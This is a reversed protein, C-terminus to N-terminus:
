DAYKFHLGSAMKRNGKCCSCINSGSISLETSADKISSYITNTEICIVRKHIASDSMKKKSEDSFHKGKQSNSIKLKTEDSAKKGIHALRNKQNSEESMKKGLNAIRLKEKTAETRHSNTMHLKAHEARTLIQLDEENWQIYREINNQKMTTDVHHLVLNNNDSIGLRQRTIANNNRSIKYQEKTM